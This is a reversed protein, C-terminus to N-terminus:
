LKKKSINFVNKVMTIPREKIAKVTLATFKKSSITSLPYEKVVYKLYESNFTKPIAKFNKGMAKKIATIKNIMFCLFLLSNIIKHVVPTLFFTITLKNNNDAIM